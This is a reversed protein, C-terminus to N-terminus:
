NKGRLTYFPSGPVLMTIAQLSLMRHQLENTETDPVVTSSPQLQKAGAVWMPSKSPVRPWPVRLDWMPSAITAMQTSFWWVSPKREERKREGDWRRGQYSGTLYIFRWLFLPFFFTDPTWHMFLKAQYTVSNSYTQEIDSFYSNESSM